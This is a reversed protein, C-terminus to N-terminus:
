FAWASAALGAIVFLNYGLVPGLLWRVPMALVADLVNTGTHAFIDKGWPYFFLDTHGLPKDRGLEHDVFWYFWQTGLADVYDIGLFATAWDAATPLWVAGIAAILGLLVIHELPHLRRAGSAPRM